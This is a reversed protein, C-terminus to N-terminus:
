PTTPSSAPTAPCGSGCPAAMGVIALRSIEPEVWVEFCRADPRSEDTVLWAPGLQDKAHAVLQDVQDHSLCERTAAAKLGVEVERARNIAALSDLPHLTIAPHSGDLDVAECDAEWGLVVPFPARPEEMSGAVIRADTSELRERVAADPLTGGCLTTATPPSALTRAADNGTTCERILGERTLPQDLAFESALTNAGSGNEYFCWVTESSLSPRWGDDHIEYEPAAGELITSVDAPDPNFVGMAAAAATSLGLLAAVAVLTIRRRPHTRTPSPTGDALHRARLMLRRGTPGQPDRDVGAAPDSQQLHDILEDTNM